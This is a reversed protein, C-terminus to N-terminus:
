GGGNGAREEARERERRERIAKVRERFSELLLARERQQFTEWVMSNFADRDPDVSEFSIPLPLTIDGLHLKGPSIGWKGGDADRITM